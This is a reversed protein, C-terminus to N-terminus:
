IRNKLRKFVAVDSSKDNKLSKYDIMKVNSCTCTYGIMNFSGKFFEMAIYPM